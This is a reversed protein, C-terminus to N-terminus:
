QSFVVREKRGVFSVLRQGKIEIILGSNKGSARSVARVSPRIVPLKHLNLANELKSNMYIPERPIPFNLEGVKRYM